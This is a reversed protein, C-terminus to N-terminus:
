RIKELLEFVAEYSASLYSEHACIPRIIHEYAGWGSHDRIQRNHNRLTYNSAFHLLSSLIVLSSINRTHTKKEPNVGDFM